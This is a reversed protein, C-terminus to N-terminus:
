SDKILVDFKCILKTSYTAIVYLKQISINLIEKM